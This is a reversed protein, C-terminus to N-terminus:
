EDKIVMVYILQGANAGSENTIFICFDKQCYPCNLHALDSM